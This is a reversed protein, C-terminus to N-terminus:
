NTEDGKGILYAGCSWLLMCYSALLQSLLAFAKCRNIDGHFFPILISHPYPSIIHSSMITKFVYVYVINGILKVVSRIFCCTYESVRYCLTM